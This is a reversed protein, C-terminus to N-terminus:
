GEISVFAGGFDKAPAASFVYGIDEPSMVRFYLLENLGLGQTYFICKFPDNM